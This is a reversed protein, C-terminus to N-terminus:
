RRLSRPVRLAEVVTGVHVDVTDEVDVAYGGALVVAVPAGADHASEFVMRDRRRLGEATLALGGLRDREFPDAGALYFVLQPATALVRSLAEGLRNLYDRDATADGLGIDLDSRPKFMPYNHQQHMSFTFVSSDREFVVATGNGHHVDLDVVVAREIRGARQLRRIAVAVDNFLCFGEGHNPFAHHLGGGLHVSVGDRLALEGVQCSGGTMLRFGDALEPMWPLELTRIDEDSLTGHRVKDLYESTHVLALDDWSCTEPAVLHSPDLIREAVLREAIRRYKVTPWIHDGLDLEYRPSYIVRM